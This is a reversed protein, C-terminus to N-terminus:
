VSRASIRRASFTKGKSDHLIVDVGGDRSQKTVKSSYGRRGFLRGVEREFEHGSLSLWFTQHSRKFWDNFESLKARYSREAARCAIVRGLDIGSSSALRVREWPKILWEVVFVPLTTLMWVLFFVESAGKEASFQVCAGMLLCTTAVLFWSAYKALRLAIRPEEFDALFKTTLGFDESDPAKPFIPLQSM